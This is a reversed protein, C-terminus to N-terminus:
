WSGVIPLDGAMGFPGFCGDPGCGSWGGSGDSDLYWMGTSPRFVGIKITGTNNWDGVVPYDGTMGFPGICSDPGCGSWGGSGDLDLYWMGSSPRFVGIKTTGSNNWDGVVPYDGAMGFPGICSDPGCGSWTGSGNLDLYWMGTSPRFVGIKVTGTNGWDGVVPIDGAMGFPGICGEVLCGDWTGNGNSDLYWMGTSSRFVGIKLPPATIGQNITFTQGEVTITGSRASAGANPSVGFQVTGNGTGTSGSTITVWGPVNNVANWFCGSVVTVNFSGTGVGSTFNQHNPTLLYLCSTGSQTVTVTKGAITLTGVRQASSGNPTVTYTVTGNGSGSTPSVSTIWGVNSVANWSCAPDSTISISANGGTPGYNATTPTAAFSCATFTANVTKAADMSNITCTKATTTGGTADCNGAWSAMSGGTATATVTVLTGYDVLGSGTNFAPYAYSIGGASSTVTGTGTGAANATLTYQILTFTATVSRAGGSMAVNCVNGGTVSDCGTWSTFTSGTAPNATINATETSDVHGTCSNGVCNFNSVNASLGFSGNGNGAKNVILITDVAIAPLASFLFLMTFFILIRGFRKM